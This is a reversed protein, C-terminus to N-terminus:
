PQNTAGVHNTQMLTNLLNLENSPLTDMAHKYTNNFRRNLFMKEALPLNRNAPSSSDHEKLFGLFFNLKKEVDMTSGRGPPESMGHKNYVDLARRNLRIAADPDAMCPVGSLEIGTRKATNRAEVVKNCDAKHKGWAAKM